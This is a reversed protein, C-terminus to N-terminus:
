RAYIWRITDPVIDRGGVAVLSCKARDETWFFPAVDDGHGRPRGYIRSVDPPEPHERTPYELGLSDSINRARKLSTHYPGVGAFIFGNSPM